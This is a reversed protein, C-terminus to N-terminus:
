KNNCKSNLISSKNKIRDEMRIITELKRKRFYLKAEISM